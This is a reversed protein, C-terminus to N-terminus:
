KCKTTITKNTGTRSSMTITPRSQYKKKITSSHELPSNIQEHCNVFLFKYSHATVYSFRKLHITPTEAINM